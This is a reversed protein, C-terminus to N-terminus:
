GYTTDRRHHLGNETGRHGRNFTLLDAPGARRAPLSIIGTVAECSLRAGLYRACAFVAQGANLSMWGAWSWQRMTLAGWRPRAPGRRVQVGRGRPRHLGGRLGPPGVEGHRLVRLVPLLHRHRRGLLAHVRAAIKGGYYYVADYGGWLIRNDATLRYYHFQNGADGVGQRHRWGISALQAASLPRTVLVYDYVPVLYYRLRRLLPAYAGAALAVRDAQVQGRPTSLTLRGAAGSRGSARVARSSGISGIATAPTHEYIRVGAALCARRLGWALRAPDITACGDPDWLGGLYTPSNLEARVQEADLLRTGVGLRDAALAAQALGDLQWPETAVALEGTRAFDCDIAYRAVARGIQDLNERGLRELADIEGPFRDHGNGLGHTISASCFGGNRGTGGWAIRRGEVLVVNRGPDREKALLATWLGSFGGGIVALEAQETGHLPPLPDPAAPQDLWYPKSGTNALARPM